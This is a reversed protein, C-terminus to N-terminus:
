ADAMDVPIEESEWETVSPHFGGGNTIPKPLTLGDLVIHVHRPDSAKHVQDTVDYHYSGATGDEFLMYISVTHKPSLGAPEGFTYFYSKITNDPSESRYASYLTFAMTIPVSTPKHSGHYFGEAMGSITADLRSDNLYQLNKVNIITIDYYCIAEEPSFVITVPSSPNPDITINRQPNNWMMGPTLAIRESPAEPSRPIQSIDVGTVLLRDLGDTYVEYSEMDEDGRIHAWTYIDSNHSLAHYTGPPLRLYGGNRGPFSVSVPEQEYAQGDARYFVAKMSEPDADPANRWDYRVQIDVSPIAYLSLEKHDCATLLAMVLLSLTWLTRNM